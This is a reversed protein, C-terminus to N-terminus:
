RYAPAAPAAAKALRDLAELSGHVFALSPYKERARTIILKYDRGFIDLVLLRMTNPQKQSASLNVIRM